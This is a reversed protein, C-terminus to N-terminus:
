VAKMSLKVKGREFGLIKVTVKQGEKLYDNVDNVREKAIESVHVLGDQRPAYEVFAGFDMIKKVTCNEIIDGIQPKYTIQKIQAIAKEAGEAGVAAITVLGDEEISIDVDYDKEMGQIVEGGKGIIAAIDDEEVKVTYIQPAYENMKERPTGIIAKMNELIHTRGKQAQELAETLLEVKLGKVKIDMQLATIGNEDGTVKFDMDGGADEMGQIDSLIKYKGTEEDIVLGMAIGAIPTKIPIGGDMLSLTSGCVSAMSSSGNCALVESVVRLMYPFEDKDKTPLVYRLAREALAGHGIERRGPGRMMRTEGVSYPPFNYHHIYRKTYEPRDAEDLLQEDKPGGVTLVSLVQTEGRQFLGSGHTRPLLGVESYLQRIEDSKRGDVREGKELIRKRLSQGLNKAFYKKLDKETFEEVQIKDAAAEILKDELEHIKDKIEKKKVGSVTDYDSDSFFNNVFEEATESEPKFTAEFPTIDFQKIFEKQAQCITKIHKHAFVLAEVMKENSILNAGAEVMLIAEETGAVLLDLDGGEEEDFSPDLIFEGNKDIGVRVAGIPAEFPVGSIQIAMSTANMAMASATHIGDGQLLTCIIQVENTMGKPFMPRIPRDIMRAILLHADSARGERKMFRSGKIKGTAYFKAEFDVVLPFFDIGERANGLGVTALLRTDGYSCFISGQAAMAMKGHEFTLTKGGLEVSHTKIDHM